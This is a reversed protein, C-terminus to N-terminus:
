ERGSARGIEVIDRGNVVSEILAEQQHVYPQRERPPQGELPFLAPGVFQEMDDLVSSNWTRGLLSRLLPGFNQGCLPYHPVPEFLPERWLRGDVNLLDRRERSLDPHRLAFPSDLYLLYLDRLNRFLALPNKM